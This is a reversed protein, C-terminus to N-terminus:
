AAERLRSVLERLGVGGIKAAQELTAVKGVTKRLVPNRLKEFTAAMGILVEELEPYADLLSGIRTGPEIAVSM